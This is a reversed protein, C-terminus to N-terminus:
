AHQEESKTLYVRVAPDASSTYAVAFHESNHAWGLEGAPTLSIGGAEGGVRELHLLSAEVADQPPLDELGHMVRTALIMRAIEEGDGSFVVGGIRNDCYVGCSPQPSDGVRGAPTGELGGTSVAAALRGNEDLAICGV